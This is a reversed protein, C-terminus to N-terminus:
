RPGPWWPIESVCQQSRKTPGTRSTGTAEATQHGVFRYTRCELFQPRRRRAGIIVQSAANSVAQPDMGDVSVVPFGFSSARQAIPVKSLETIRATVAYQNNECLFVVPLNWIAAMNMAEALVGQNIGGDGFFDRCGRDERNGYRGHLV